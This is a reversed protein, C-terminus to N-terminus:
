NDMLGILKDPQVILIQQNAVKIIGMKSWESMVRIVSEHTVGLHDALEKKTMPINIEHQNDKSKVALDLLVGAIKVPLPLRQMARIAQFKQVRSSLLSQIKLILQPQVMWNKLYVDKKILLCRSLGMSKVDVPYKSNQNGMILAGIVDGATAFHILVEDGGVSVKTLKLAGSIVIAFSVAEEGLQYLSERNSFVRIQSDACLQSIQQPALGEFIPFQSIEPLSALLNLNDSM